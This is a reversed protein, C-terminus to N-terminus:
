TFLGAGTNTTTVDASMAFGSVLWNSKAGVVTLLIKTGASITNGIRKGNEGISNEM